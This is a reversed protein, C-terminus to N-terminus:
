ETKTTKLPTYNNPKTIINNGTFGLLNCYKYFTSLGCTLVDDRIAKLYISSKSWFRFTDNKMYNKITRVENALLQNPMKRFCWKYYFAECKHILITKYNEFSSRSINFLKLAKNVPVTHKVSEVTNVVLEMNNKILSKFGKAKSTIHNLTDSLKFYCEIVTKIKVTQNFRKIFEIEKNIFESFEFGKYKSEPEQKWRSINSSPINNTLYEPIYEELGLRYYHKISTDWSQRKLSSQIKIVISKCVFNLILIWNVILSITSKTLLLYLNEISNNMDRKLVGQRQKNTLELSVGLHEFHIKKLKRKKGELTLVLEETDEPLVITVNLLDHAPALIWVSPSEIMSFNKLHMDNNGTLFSLVALEFYFIKDLLTNNSYSDLAKGVKEMSSKYKDFTETIQFMDLMHIKEGNETSDIRKTVYSLEGSVLRILSSLVIRIGFAEAIRMTVHENEPM